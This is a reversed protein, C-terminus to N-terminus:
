EIRRLTLLSGFSRARLHQGASLEVGLVDVARDVAAAQARAALQRADRGRAAQRELDWAADAVGGDQARADIGVSLDARRAGGSAALGVQQAQRREQDDLLQAAAAAGLVGAHLGQLADGRAGDLLTQEVFAPMGAELHL